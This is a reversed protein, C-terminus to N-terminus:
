DESTSAVVEALSKGRLASRQAERLGAVGRGATLELGVEFAVSASLREAPEALTYREPAQEGEDAVPLLLGRESLRELMGTALEDDIGIARAAFAPTLTKGESFRRAALVAVSVAAGPEVVRWSRSPDAGMVDRRHQALFACQLGFLVIMWTVYVWLLFIPILGIAGYLREVGGSFSSLYQVLGFKDLEWLVAAIVAGSLATRLHVQANPIVRYLLVFLLTSIMVGVLRTIFAPLWVVEWQMWQAVRALATTLESGLYFTLIMFIPGVVLLTTYNTFRRSWSRGDRARYISNFAREIEILFGLVAYVLAAAGVAGIARLRGQQGEVGSVLEDMWQALRAQEQSAAEVAPQGIAENEQSDAPAEEPPAVVSQDVPSQDVPSRDPTSQDAPVDDGITVASEGVSDPDKATAPSAPDLVIRDIGTLEFVRDVAGEVTDKDALTGIVAGGIVFMPILAFITRYALAAAMRPIQTRHTRVAANRVGLVIAKPWPQPEDFAPTHRVGSRSM